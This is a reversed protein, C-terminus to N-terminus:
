ENPEPWEQVIDWVEGFKARVYESLEAAFSRQLQLVTLLQQADALHKLHRPHMGAALKMEMLHPLSAFRIGDITVAAQAPDPFSLPKPRRDGPFEGTVLFDIRVGTEVHRLCRESPSPRIYGSGILEEHIRALGAPTVLLDVDETFRRFGHFFMAMAGVVCYDIGLEELRAAVFRLTKHVESEKDFLMCGDWFAWRPSRDLRTEYPFFEQGITETTLENM